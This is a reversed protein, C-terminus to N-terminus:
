KISRWICFFPRGVIKDKKVPGFDRSDISDIRNDGLVYYKDEPITIPGFNNTNGNINFHSEIEKNDVYLKNDRYEITEGPLGIVRKVLYSPSHEFVIVDFRKYDGFRSTIQEVLLINGDYLNPEM